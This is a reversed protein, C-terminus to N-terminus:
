CPQQQKASLLQRFLNYGSLSGLLEGGLLCVRLSSACLPLHFFVRRSSILTKTLKPALCVNKSETLEATRSSSCQRPTRRAWAWNALVRPGVLLQLYQVSFFFFDRQPRIKVGLDVRNRYKGCSDWREKLLSAKAWRVNRDKSKRFTRNAVLCWRFFRWFICVLTLKENNGKSNLCLKSQQHYIIPTCSVNFIHM